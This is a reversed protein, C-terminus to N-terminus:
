GQAKLTDIIVHTVWREFRTKLWGEAGLRDRLEKHRYSLEKAARVLAIRKAVDYNMKDEPNKVTFGSVCFNFEKSEIICVTIQRKVGDFMKVWSSNFTIDFKRDFIEIDKYMQKFKYM